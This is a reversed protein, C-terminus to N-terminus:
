IEIYVTPTDEVFVYPLRKKSEASWKDPDSIFHLLAQWAGGRAAPSKNVVSTTITVSSFRAPLAHKDVFQVLSPFIHDELEAFVGGLVVDQLDLMNIASSIAMGLYAAASEVAQVASREQALASTLLGLHGRRDFGAAEMIAARSSVAELCGNAGCECRPGDPMVCVHGIEASWGHTGRRPLGDLVLASSIGAQGTIYLFDHLTEPETLRRYYEYGSGFIAENEFFIPVGLRDKIGSLAEGLEVNRWGLSPATFLYGAESDVLGPLAVGVGVLTLRSSDVQVAISSIVNELRSFLESPDLNRHDAFQLRQALVRGTLDMLCVDIRDANLEVGISVYTYPAPKLPIAPRGGSSKIPDGEVVIGCDVMTTVIRSLTPRTLGTERALDARSMESQGKIIRDAVLVLNHKKM